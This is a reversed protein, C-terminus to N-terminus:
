TVFYLYKYTSSTHSDKRAVLHIYSFRNSSQFLYLYIYIYISIKGIYVAWHRYLGRDIELLDGPKAKAIVSRNNQTVDM